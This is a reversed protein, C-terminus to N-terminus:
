VAGANVVCFLFHNNTYFDNRKTISRGFKVPAGRKERVVMRNDTQPRIQSGLRQACKKHPQYNDIM